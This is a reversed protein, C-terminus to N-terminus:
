VNSGRLSFALLFLIGWGILILTVADKLAQDGMSGPDGARKPAKPERTTVIPDGVRESETVMAM